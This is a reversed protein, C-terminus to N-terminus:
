HEQLFELVEKSHIQPKVKEYVKIIKKNEDLVFTVRSYGMYKKGMFSKEGYVGYQEGVKSDTDSLLTVKLDYKNCFKSKTKDDGGSIGIVAADLEGYKSIDSSFQKAEITCGPTNDKPYFYVVVFRSKVDNLNHVVGDKDKLSFIPATKGEKLPNM